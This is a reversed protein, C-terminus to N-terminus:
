SKWGVRPNEIGGNKGPQRGHNESFSGGWGRQAGEGTGMVQEWTGKLEGDVEQMEVEGRAGGRHGTSLMKAAGWTGAGSLVM